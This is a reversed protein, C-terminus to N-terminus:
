WSVVVMVMVLVVMVGGDDSLFACRTLDDASVGTIEVTELVEFRPSSRLQEWVQLVVFDAAAFFAGEPVEVM